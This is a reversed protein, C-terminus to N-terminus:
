GGNFLGEKDMDIAKGVAELDKFGEWGILADILMVAYSKEMLGLNRKHPSDSIPSFPAEYVIEERLDIAVGYDSNSVKMVGSAVKFGKGVLAKLVM